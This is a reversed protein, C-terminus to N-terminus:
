EHKNTRLNGTSRRQIHDVVCKELHWFRTSIYLIPNKISVYWKRPPYVQNAMKQFTFGMIIPHLSYM